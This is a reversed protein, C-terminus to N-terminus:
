ADFILVVKLQVLIYICICIICTCKYVIYVILQLLIYICTYLKCM